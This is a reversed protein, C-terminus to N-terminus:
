QVLRARQKMAETMSIKGTEDVRMAATVGLKSLVVQWETAGAVFAPKSAVDSLVGAQPGPPVLVTVAQTGQAPQGTRPDIIHAYRRGELEFFRQYDGSTGIAEGDFLDLEAIAGPRRPHQVGVRWPRKGRSGLAIINGGINVLANTIGHNRLIDRARDLALGKAYGGLDLQVARNRCLVSGGPEILVDAMRPNRAVWARVEDPDPLRAEFSDSHFGWLAVLGGIAPNFLDDSRAAWAAADRLINALEPNIAVREGNACAQNLETLPSPQWAHLMRHLRDFEQLVAAAAQAKPQPEGHISVEVLTGFVYAQQQYVPEDGCGALLLLVSFWLPVSARRTRLAQRKEGQRQTGPTFVGKLM